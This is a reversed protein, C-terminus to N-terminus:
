SNVPFRLTVRTGSPKDDNKLDDYSLSGKNKNGANLLRIRENLITIGKSQHSNVRHMQRGIGNDEVICLIAEDSKKVAIKLERGSSKGALGHWIANEVLPQLLLSPVDVEDDDIDADVEIAYRFSGPMRGAEMSLYLELMQLERSLSIYDEDSSELIMRLLRSFRALYNNAKDVDGNLICEQLSNLCNFIFHPDMQSRLAKMALRNNISEIENQQQKLEANLIYLQSSHKRERRYSKRLLLGAFFLTVIGAASLLLSLRNRQLRATTIENEARLIKNEKEKSETEFQTQLKMLENSREATFLSDKLQDAKEDYEWASKYDGKDKYIRSIAAYFEQELSKNNLRVAIDLGHSFAKLADDSLNLKLCANGILSSIYAMDEPLDSKIYLGEALRYENLAQHYKQQRLYLDGINEHLMGKKYHDNTNDILGYSKHYYSMATDYKGEANFTNGLSQYADSMGNKKEAAAYYQLADQFYKRAQAFKGQKNYVVGINYYHFGLMATDHVSQAYNLTVLFYKLAQPYDAKSLYLWGLNSCVVPPYAPNGISNFLALAKQLYQGSKIYNGKRYYLWGINNYCDAIGKEYKNITALHLATDGYLIGKDPDSNSYNYCILALNDISDKINRSSKLRQMLEPVKAIDQSVADFGAIFFTILLFLFSKM